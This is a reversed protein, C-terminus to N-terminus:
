AERHMKTHETDGHHIFTSQIAVLTPLSARLEHTKKCAENTYPNSWSGRRQWSDPSTGCRPFHSQASSVPRYPGASRDGRMRDADTIGTETEAPEPDPRLPPDKEASMAARSPSSRCIRRASLIRCMARRLPACGPSRGNVAAARCYGPHARHFRRREPPTARTRRDLGERSTAPNRARRSEPPPWERTAPLVDRPPSDANRPPSSAPASQPLQRQAGKWPSSGTADPTPFGARSAPTAIKPLVSRIFSC